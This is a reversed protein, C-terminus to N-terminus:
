KHYVHTYGNDDSSISIQKNHLEKFIDIHSICIIIPIKEKLLDFLEDLEGKRVSDLSSWGEDIAFFNPQPSATINALALRIAVSLIFKDSGCLSEAFRLNESPRIEIHLKTEVYVFHATFKVIKTLIDNINKELIPMKDCLISKPIGNKGVAKKYINYLNIKSEIINKNTNAKNYENIETNLSGLKQYLENIKNKNDNNLSEIQETLDSIELRIKKNNEEQNYKKINNNIENVEKELLLKEENNTSLFNVIESFNNKERLMKKNIKKINNIKKEIKNNKEITLKIKEFHSIKEKIISINNTLEYNDKSIKEIKKKNKEHTKKNENYKNKKKILEDLEQTINIDTLINSSKYKNDLTNKLETLTKNNQEICKNIILHITKCCECQKNHECKKLDININTIYNIQNELNSMEKLIIIKESIAEEKNYKIIDDNKEYFDKIESYCLDYEALAITNKEILEKYKETLEYSNKTNDEVKTLTKTLKNIEDFNTERIDDIDKIKKNYINIVNDMDKIEKKYKDLKKKYEDIEFKKIKKNKLLDKINLKNVDVVILQRNKDNIVKNLENIKTKADENKTEMQKIKTEINTKNKKNEKNKTADLQKNIADLIDNDNSIAAVAKKYLTEYINLKLMSNLYENRKPLSKDLFGDNNNQSAIFTSVFKDYSGIFKIIEMNTKINKDQNLSKKEKDKKIYFDVTKGITQKKDKAIKRVCTRKIGYIKEDIEFEIVCECKMKKSNLVVESEGRSCQGFLAFLIIDLIASKGNGNNGTIEVIENMNTFDIMNEKEGYSFMNKFKLTKIKWNINDKELFDKINERKQENKKVRMFDTIRLETMFNTHIKKINNIEKQKKKKNKDKIEKNLYEKNLYETLIEDISANDTKVRVKLKEKEKENEYIKHIRGQINYKEKLETEIKMIEDNQTNKITLRIKPYEPMEEDTKIVKGQDVIYTIYGYKNKVKLLESTNEKLNIKVIGHDTLTEKFNQQILSGPYIIKKEKDMYQFKHIDGLLGWDYGEFDKTLIDNSDFRKGTYDEAKDVIGHYLAIKYETEDKIQTAKLLKKDGVKTVGFIVNGYKYVGTDGFYHLNKKEICCIAELSDLRSKNMLNIDHNGSIIIVPMIKAINNLMKTTVKVCEPSLDLRSHLIDGCIVMISTDKNKEKNLIKNIEEFIENYEKHRQTLRIHIDAMHYITEIKADKKIIKMEMEKDVKEKEQKKIAM